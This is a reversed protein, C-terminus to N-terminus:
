RCKEVFIEVYTYYNGVGERRSGVRGKEEGKCVSGGTGKGEWGMMRRGM